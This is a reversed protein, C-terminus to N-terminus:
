RFGDYADIKIFKMDPFAFATITQMKILDPFMQITLRIYHATSKINKHGLFISILPLGCYIDIGLSVLKQLSHIAATHRIDHIRPRNIYTQKPIDAYYLIKQFWFRINGNYCPKGLQTTFFYKGEVNIDHIPILNRFEKYEKLVLLLSNNIVTLRQQKNKTRNIYIVRKDFDVDENKLSLAESIRMGTSYLLRLLAPMVFMPTTNRNGCARLKDATKFLLEMEETTFIYPIYNNQNGERPIRPIYCEIGISCLYKCFNAWANYKYYLTRKSDNIRTSKWKLIVTETIRLDVISYERFFRDFELMFDKLVNTNSLGRQEKEKLFGIIYPTFISKYRSQEDIKDM